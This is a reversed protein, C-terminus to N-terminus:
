RIEWDCGKQPRLKLRWFSTPLAMPIRIRYNAKGRMRMTLVATIMHAMKLTDRSRIPKYLISNNFFIQLIKALLNASKQFFERIKSFKTPFCKKVLCFIQEKTLKPLINGLCTTLLWITVLCFTASGWKHIMSASRGAYRAHFLNVLCDAAQLM